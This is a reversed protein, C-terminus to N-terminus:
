IKRSKNSGKSHKSLKVEKSYEKIARNWTNKKLFNNWFDFDEKPMNYGGRKNGNNGM